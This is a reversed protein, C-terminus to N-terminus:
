GARRARRRLNRAKRRRRGLVVAEVAGIIGAVVAAAWFVTASMRIWLFRHQTSAASQAVVILSVVGPTV